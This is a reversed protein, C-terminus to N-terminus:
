RPASSSRPCTRCSPAVRAARRRVCARLTAVRCYLTCRMYAEEQCLSLRSHKHTASEARFLRLVSSPSFDTQAALRTSSISMEDALNTHASARQGIPRQRARAHQTYEWRIGKVHHTQDYGRSAHIPARIHERLRA